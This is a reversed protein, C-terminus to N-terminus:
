ADSAQATATIFNQLASLRMNADTSLNPRGNGADLANPSLLYGPRRTQPFAFAAASEVGQRSKSNQIRGATAPRQSFARRVVKGNPSADNQVNCIEDRRRLSETVQALTSDGGYRHLTVQVARSGRDHM